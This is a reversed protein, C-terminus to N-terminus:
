RAGRCATRGPGTPCSSGGAAVATVVLDDDAPPVDHDVVLHGDAAADGAADVASRWTVSRALRDPPGERVEPVVAPAEPRRCHRTWASRSRPARGSRPAPRCRDAWRRSWRPSSPWGSAPGAPFAGGPPRGGTSGTSSTPWTPPAAIGPGNDAVEISSGAAPAPGPPWRRGDRGRRRPAARQRDPQVRGPAAPRPRGAGDPRGARRGDGGGSGLVM